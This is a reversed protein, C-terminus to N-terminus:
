VPNNELHLDLSEETHFLEYSELLRFSPKEIVLNSLRDTHVKSCLYMIRTHGNVQINISHVKYQLKVVSKITKFKGGMNLVNSCKPCPYNAGKILVMGSHDCTECDSYDRVTEERVKSTWIDEGVNFRTKIEM